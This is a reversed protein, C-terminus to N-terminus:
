ANDKRVLARQYLADRPLGTVKAAVRAADRVSLSELLADLLKDVAPDALGDDERAPAAHLILVFEGQEHHGDQALWAAAEALPFTVIQEFRKTLERAVTLQREPGCVTLLDAFMASLRHPSEFMLVPAPLASWEGLWRQRAAAKSPAFGAFAFAPNEDSTVGSGMLATIVASPGPIPVVPYGAERVARVVRAGPDSVAPAGADSVLAVRQGQALRQCITQAAQAENHRHAAMLPTAIGWADLLTRSARTDEAAIVDARALAQWARLGMDGLNGIPTAVVYLAGEPWHQAAVREAVRRWAEGTVVATVEQNM